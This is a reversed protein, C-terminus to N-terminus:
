ERPDVLCIQLYTKRGPKLQMYAQASPRQLLFLANQRQPECVLRIVRTYPRSVAHFSDAERVQQLPLRIRLNPHLDRLPISIHKLDRQAMGHRGILQM